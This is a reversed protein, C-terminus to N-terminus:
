HLKQKWTSEIGYILGFGGVQQVEQEVASVEVLLTLYRCALCLTLLQM